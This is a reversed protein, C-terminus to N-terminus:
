NCSTRPLAYEKIKELAEVIAAQYSLAKVSFVYWYAQPPFHGSKCYNKTAFFPERCRACCEGKERFVLQYEMAHAYGGNTIQGSAHMTVVRDDRAGGEPTTLWAREIDEFTPM